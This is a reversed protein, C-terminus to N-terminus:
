PLDGLHQELQNAAAGLIEPTATLYWYTTSPSVHGLYTSLLPLRQEVDLNADQWDRLTWMAFAHRLDHIRPRRPRNVPLGARDVLRAFTM